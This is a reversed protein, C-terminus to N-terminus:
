STRVGCEERLFRGIIADALRLCDECDRGHGSKPDSCDYKHEHLLDALELRDAPNM